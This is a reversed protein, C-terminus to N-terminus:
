AAPLSRLTQTQTQIMGERQAILAQIDEIAWGDVCLMERTGELDALQHGFAIM